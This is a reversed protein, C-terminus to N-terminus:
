LLVVDHGAPLGAGPLQGWRPQALAVLSCAVAGVWAWAGDGRPRGGQGLAKWDRAARRRARAVWLTLPPLLLLLWLREPHAFTLMPGCSSTGRWPAFITFQILFKNNRKRRSRQAKALFRKMM